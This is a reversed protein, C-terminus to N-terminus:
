RMRWVYRRPKKPWFLKNTREPTLSQEQILCPIGKAPVSTSLQVTAYGGVGSQKGNAQFGQDIEEAAMRQSKWSESFYLSTRSCTNATSDAFPCAKSRTDQQLSANCKWEAKLGSLCYKQMLVSPKLQTPLLYPLSSTDVLEVAVLSYHMRLRNNM